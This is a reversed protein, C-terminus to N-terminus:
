QSQFNDSRLFQSHQLWDCREAVTLEGSSWSSSESTISCRASCLMYIYRSSLWCEGDKMNM